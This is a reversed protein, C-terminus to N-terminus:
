LPKGSEEDYVRPLLPSVLTRRVPLVVETGRGVEPCDTVDLCCQDMSVRGIVPVRASGAQAQPQHEQRGRRSYALQVQAGAFWRWRRAVSQPVVGVGHSTGLPVTAVRTRRRCVFEGGYGVRSGREVWHTAVIRSRLEFGERLDLTRRKAPVHDPYQGYLLTGVRVMDFHLNPSELVMASAAAHFLLRRETVQRSAEQVMAAFVRLTSGPHLWELSDVDVGSGPPGFHSYLGSLELNPWPEAAELIDMVRESPGIRGLGLDEYVHAHAVKGQRQGARQLELVQAVSVVTATLDHEVVAECEQPLPPLFVLIPITVGAERLLVGEEVTSVGLWDAGAAACTRAVERAGHGYANGKVVACLRTAPALVSRVQALNHRIAGLHVRVYSVPSSSM